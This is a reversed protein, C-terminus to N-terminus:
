GSKALRGSFRRASCGAPRTAQWQPNDDAGYLITYGRPFRSHPNLPITMSCTPEYALKGDPLRREARLQAVDWVSWRITRQSVNTYTLDVRVRSSHATLAFRRTIQLGTRADPPSTM